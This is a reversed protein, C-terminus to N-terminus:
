HRLECKIKDALRIAFAVITLTPKAHAGAAFISGGSVFLGRVGHVQCNPDVVGSTPGSSMRTIGAIHTMDFVIGDGLRGEDVRSELIPTPLRSPNVFVSLSDFSPSGSTTMSGGVKAPPMGFRDTRHSLTVRSDPDPRQESIADISGASPKHPVGRSQFGEAVFNPNVWIAM